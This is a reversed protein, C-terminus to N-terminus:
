SGLVGPPGASCAALKQYGQEIKVLGSPDKYLIPNGGVCAYPNIDSFAVGLPDAQSYSGWSSRYWRDINYATDTARDAEQGPLRM